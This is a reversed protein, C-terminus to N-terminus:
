FYGNLTIGLGNVDQIQPQSDHQRGVYLDIVMRKGIPTTTGAEWRVRSVTDYRSDYYAEVNAYPTTSGHTFKVEHELQLRNRIRYSSTGDSDRLDTRTRDTLRTATGFYWRYNFDFIYRHEVSNQVGPSQAITLAYDFGARLSIHENMRYDLYIAGEGNTRDGTDRDRTGSGTLLLRFSDNLKIWLDLEPWFEDRTDAGARGGIVLCLVAAVFRAYCSPAFLKLDPSFVLSIAQQRLSGARGM